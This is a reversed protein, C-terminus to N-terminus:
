QQCNILPKWWRLQWCNNWTVSTHNLWNSTCIVCKRFNKKKLIAEDLCCDLSIWTVIIFCILFSWVRVYVLYSHRIQRVFFFYNESTSKNLLVPGGWYCSKWSYWGARDRDVVDWNWEKMNRDASDGRTLIHEVTHSQSLSQSLCLSITNHNTTIQDNIRESGCWGWAWQERKARRSWWVFYSTPQNWSM